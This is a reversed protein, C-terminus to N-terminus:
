HPERVTHVLIHIEVPDAHMALLEVERDECPEHVHRHIVGPRQVTMDSSVKRAKLKPPFDCAGDELRVFHGTSSAVFLRSSRQPGFSPKVTHVVPRHLEGVVLATPTLDGGTRSTAALPSCQAPEAALLTVNAEADVCAEHGVVRLLLLSSTSTSCM